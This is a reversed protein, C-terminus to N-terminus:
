RWGSSASSFARLFFYSCRLLHLFVAVLHRLGNALFRNPGGLSDPPTSRSYSRPYQVLVAPCRVRLRFARRGDGDASGSSRRPGGPIGSRGSLLRTWSILVDPWRRRVYPELAMYSLWVFVAATVAASFSRFFMGFEGGTDLVHHGELIWTLMVASFVFASVRFSGKRDGRGMRVNRRAFIAGAVLLSVIM